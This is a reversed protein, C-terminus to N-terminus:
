STVRGVFIFYFCIYVCLLWIFRETEKAVPLCFFICLESLLYAIDCCTLVLLCVIYELSLYLLSAALANCLVNAPRVTDEAFRSIILGCLM